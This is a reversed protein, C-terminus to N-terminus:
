CQQQSRCVSVSFLPSNDPWIRSFRIFLPFFSRNICKLVGGGEERFFSHFTKCIHINNFKSFPIKFFFIANKLLLKQLEHIIFIERWKSNNKIKNLILFIFYFSLLRAYLTMLNFSVLININM